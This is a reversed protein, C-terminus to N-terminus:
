FFMEKMYYDSFRPDTALTHEKIKKSLECATRRAADGNVLATVAGYLATNGVALTKEKLQEPLLGIRAASEVSLKQGFGGALYVQDLEEYSCGYAALLVDIGARVAAKAMQLERIDKQSIYIRKGQASTGLTIGDERLEELLLGTEDLFGGELLAAAADVMGTGCIGCPLEGGITKIRLGSEVYEVQCVAGRIGPSGCEMNGGEFAPGAAASASLLGECNGVVMEGNTGLDLFLAPKTRRAFGCALLGAVIDGGIFASSGPFIWFAEKEVPAVSFPRFPAQGLGSCDYKMFLHQMTTNMALVMQLRNIRRNEGLYKKLFDTLREYGQEIDGHIMQFLEEAHGEVAASIRSIVDAGFSRQSNSATYTCLVKRRGAGDWGILQMAITTTGVDVAIGYRADMGLKGSEMPINELAEGEAGAKTGPEGSEQPMNEGYRTEVQLAAEEEWAVTVTENEKLRCTCSLRYGESLEEESFIQRDEASPPVEGELVKVRCKGCRGKGGCFGTRGVGERKLLEFLTQNKEGKIRKQRM